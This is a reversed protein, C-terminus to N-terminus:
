ESRLVEAPNAKAVKMTQSGIMILALVVIAVVGLLMEMLNLPAHNTTNPFVVKEFFLIVIPLSICTAILLLAIFGKGLLYLLRSESAGMVKRISMEKLRIETTFVVMGLLGLSAICIALFALFGALKVTAKLGSFAEEIQQSYFRAEFPHIPDFKKWIAEIKTHTAILDSSQIKVNLLRASAPEYRFIIEKSVENNARAYQFNKMVGVITLDKNDVRLVDGLAKEPNQGGINFRKLIQENVIVESEKASDPKPLFNRGAILQHGHLPIYNEDVSNFGVGSSDNPSGHYKMNTGYYSGVSTVMMSKSTAKVEPLEELEKKLLEAKNGQLEINLINETNFGLDFSIYHQYQRYVGISASVLIISICYQVVTLAKRGTIKKFGKFSSTNKLVQIAQVNAFFLSPFLGAAVGVFLAFLLFYFMVIPSLQLTFMKQVEPEISLFHPRLLFFGLVAIALACLSIVVAEIIFQMMVHNRMAGIVKRVGVERTRRLSRAISLNTYNFCASLIVIFALGGFVWLLTSGLVPGIENGMSDSLMIKSMPQLALEIHTNEVSPDEKKSLEALKEKILATNEDKSLLLYVWAHWVNDWANENEDDKALIERTSLSGLMEFKIHSFFPIDKVIGTVTYSKDKNVSVTKGLADEDGFLKKAATQTLVLSFPQELATAPNGQIIEFSFVKFLAPNAWYGSMPVIKEGIQLDGQFDTRLIAVDDVGTFSEKILRASKLSTTAMFNNGKDGLYEYRSIVRYIRDRNQHFTDYSLIDSLVGILVLGVSMSVALGIINIASFLKNRVLSRGSTKIYSNLMVWNILLDIFEPKRVTYLRFFKIVDLIYILRARQYGKSKAHREFYENLDGQLDELLEPKCYWELIREAWRPPSYKKDEEKM